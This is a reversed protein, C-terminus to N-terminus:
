KEELIESQRIIEEGVFNNGGYMNLFLEFNSQSYNLSAVEFIPM